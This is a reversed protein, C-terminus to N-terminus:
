LNGVEGLESRGTATMGARYEDERYGPLGSASSAPLVITSCTQSRHWSLPAKERMMTAVSSSRIADATIRNPSAIILELEHALPVSRTASTADRRVSALTNILTCPSSGVMWGSASRWSASVKASGAILM